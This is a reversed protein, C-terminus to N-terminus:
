KPSASVYFVDSALLLWLCRTKKPISFYVLGAVAFFIAFQLSNFLM